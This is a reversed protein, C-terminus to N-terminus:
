YKAQYTLWSSILAKVLITHFHKSAQQDHTRVLYSPHYTRFCALTRDKIKIPKPNNGFTSLKGLRFYSAPLEGLIVICNAKSLLSIEELLFEACIQIQKKTPDKVKGNINPFCKVLNTIYVYSTYDIGFKKSITELKERLKRGSPGVFPRGQEIEEKGPAIGLIILGANENGEGCVKSSIKHLDCKQCTEINKCLEQLSSM